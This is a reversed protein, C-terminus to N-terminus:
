RKSFKKTSINYNKIMRYVTMRNSQAVRAVESINGNCRTLLEILYNREFKEMWKKRAEKLPLDPAPLFSNMESNNLIHEPLDEAHISNGSALSIVREVVNQLESVNGPWHYNKLMRIAETSFKVMERQDKECFKKLFYNILLPIDPKRERLPPLKIPIVNLRYYLDERLQNKNVAAEPISNSASIIRFDVNVMKKQFPPKFQREQIVRLLKAQLDANLECVEDFFITGKNAQQFYGTKLNGNDGNSESYDGFLEKELLQSPLALCDVAIFPSSARRSRVHIARAILEKGTGNEGYIFVNADTKAIKQVKELIDIMVPTSGIINQFNFVEQVQTKLAENERTLKRIIKQNKQASQESEKHLEATLFLNEIINILEIQGFPKKLILNIGNAMLENKDNAELEDVILLIIPIFALKEYKKSKKFQNLFEELSIDPLQHNILILDIKTNFIKELGEQGSYASHFLNGAEELYVRLSTQSEQSDDILIIAKNQIM